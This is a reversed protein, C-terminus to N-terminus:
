MTIRQKGNINFCEKVNRKSIKETNFAQLFYRCFCNRGHYLLIIIMCSFFM